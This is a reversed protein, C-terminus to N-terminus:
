HLTLLYLFQNLDALIEDRITLLDTDRKIDIYYHIKLELLDRYFYIINHIKEINHPDTFMIFKGKMNLRKGNKGLLVEVFRDINKNLREYLEDTAKHQSYSHTKWHYVKIIMLLELLYNILVSKIEINKNLKEGNSNSTEKNKENDERKEVSKKHVKKKIFPLNNNENIIVLETLNNENNKNNKNKEKKLIANVKKM